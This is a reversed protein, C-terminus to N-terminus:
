ILTCHNRLCPGQCKSCYNHIIRENNHLKFKMFETHNLSLFQYQDREDDDIESKGKQKEAKSNGPNKEKTGKNKKEAKLKEKDTLSTESQKFKKLEIQKTVRKHTSTLQDRNWENVKSKTVKKYTSWFLYTDTDDIKSKEDQQEENWNDPNKEQKRKNGFRSHFTKNIKEGLSQAVFKEVGNFDTVGKEDVSIGLAGTSIGTNNSYNLHTLLPGDVGANFSCGKESIVISDGVKLPGVKYTTSLGLYVGDTDKGLRITGSAAGPIGLSVSADVGVRGFENKGVTIGCSFIGLNLKLGISGKKIRFPGAHYGEDSKGAYGNTAVCLAQLGIDVAKSVTNGM